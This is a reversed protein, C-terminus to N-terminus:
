RQVVVTAGIRVQNYLETVDENYMRICGASVAEGITWPENTGHIRYLSGGLYLARAGLPNDAGGAMYTPLEPKRKRMQEPPSWDPWERKASVTTVGAWARGEEGVGIPYAVAKGGGKVLYLRRESTKVVITGPAYRGSYSVTEHPIVTYLRGCASVLIGLLLVVVVFSRM